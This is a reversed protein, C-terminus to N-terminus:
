TIFMFPFQSLLAPFPLYPYFWKYSPTFGPLPFACFHAYVPTHPAKEVQNQLNKNSPLIKPVNPM